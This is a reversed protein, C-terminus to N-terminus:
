NTRPPIPTARGFASGSRAPAPAPQPMPLPNVAPSPGSVPQAPASRRQRLQDISTDLKNLIAKVQDFAKESPGM